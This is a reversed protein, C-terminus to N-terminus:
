RHSLFSGNPMWWRLSHAWTQKALISGSPLPQLLLFRHTYIRFDLVGQTLASAIVDRGLGCGSTRLRGVRLSATLTALFTWRVAALYPEQMEQEILACLRETAPDGRYAQHANLLAVLNALYQPRNM